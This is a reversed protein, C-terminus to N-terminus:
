HERGRRDSQAAAHHLLRQPRRPGPEPGPRVPSVHGPRVTLGTIAAPNPVNVSATFPTMVPINPGSAPATGPQIPGTTGNIGYSDGAQITNSNLITYKPTAGSGTGFDEWGVTVLGSNNQNVVLQPHSNDQPGFNGGTSAITEGSFTNGGDSSVVVEIRNPNYPLDVNPNAPHIDGSAWAIYVNGAHPDLPVGAPPATPARDVALTPSYAADSTTLWQYVVQDRFTTQPPASSNFGFKSLTLAGDTAGSTQSALM